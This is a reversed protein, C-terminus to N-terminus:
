LLKWLLAPTRALAAMANRAQPLSRRGDRVNVEGRLPRRKIRQHHSLPAVVMLRVADNERYFDTEEASPTPIRISTRIGLCDPRPNRNSTPGPQLSKETKTPAATNGVVNPRYQIPLGPATWKIKTPDITRKAASNPVSTDTDEPSGPRGTELRRLIIGVETRGFPQAAEKAQKLVSEADPEEAEISERAFYL